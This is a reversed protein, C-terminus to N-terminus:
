LISVSILIADMLEILNLSGYAPKPTIRLSLKSNPTALQINPFAVVYSDLYSINANAKFNLIIMHLAEFGNTILRVSRHGFPLYFLISHLFFLRRVMRLCFM